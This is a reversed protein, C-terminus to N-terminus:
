YQRAAKMFDEAYHKVLNSSLRGAKFRMEFDAVILKAAALPDADDELVDKRIREVFRYLGVIDYYEKIRHFAERQQKYYYDYDERYGHNIHSRAFGASAGPLSSISFVKFM